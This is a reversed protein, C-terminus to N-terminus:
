VAGAARPEFTGDRVEPTRPHRAPAGDYSEPTQKLQQRAALNLLTTPEDLVLVNV